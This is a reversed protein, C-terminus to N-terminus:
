LIIERLFIINPHGNLQKLVRIERIQHIEDMSFPFDITNKVKEECSTSTLSTLRSSKLDAPWLIIESLEIQM